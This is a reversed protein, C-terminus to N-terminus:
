KRILAYEDATLYVLAYRTGMGSYQPDSAGKTDIFMLNGLFGAYDRPVLPVADHALTAVSVDVGNANVDVFVGQAKQYVYIQCNQGALVVKLTQAPKAMLPIQQM